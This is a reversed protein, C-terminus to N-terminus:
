FTKKREEGWNEFHKKREEGMEEDTITKRSREKEEEEEEEEEEEKKKEKRKRKILPEPNSPQSAAPAAPQATGPTALLGAAQKETKKKKKPRDVLPSPMAQAAQDVEMPAGESAAANGDTPM